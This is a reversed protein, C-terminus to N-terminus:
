SFDIFYHQIVSSIIPVTTKNMINFSSNYCFYYILGFTCQYKSLTIQKCIIIYYSHLLFFYLNIHALVKWKYFSTEDNFFDKSLGVARNTNRGETLLLISM